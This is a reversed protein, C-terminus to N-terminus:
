DLTSMAEILRTAVLPGANHGAVDAAHGHWWAAACAVRHALEQPAATDAAAASWWGGAWGALVDGSGPTALRANGTPIVHPVAELGTCVTGSGKLLVACRFQTALAQGAALRDAQVEAAGIGLLRAAELPHPTLLTGRQAADRERLAQQLAPLRAIANLADADLVLRAASALLTPLVAQVAEGGGCGAVMTSRALVAPDASLGPRAMLEPTPAPGADPALADIYVRGAGARLAATAALVAAGSMGAAGGVVIVDGYSGKHAVHARPRRWPAAVDAGALWADAPAAPAVGLRDFWVEGAHDRGAGTFLGPKLSLLALTHTARVAEAGLPQGREAHLGSPLDVALIPAGAGNVRMIAEAFRGEPPRSAGLGLLADIVLETGPPPTLDALIRANVAQAAALGDQADAPLQAADGILSVTVERGLRALHAAAHLGDGGNNGPGAVVWVARAHPHLACALRAVAAGARRILTHEPLGAMAAREIARSRTVGYLPHGFGTDPRVPIPSAADDRM